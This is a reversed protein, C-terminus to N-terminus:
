TAIENPIYGVNESLGLYNGKDKVFFGPRRSCKPVSSPLRWLDVQLPENQTSLTKEFAFLQVPRYPSNKVLEVTPPKLNWVHSKTEM